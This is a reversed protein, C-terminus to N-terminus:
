RAEKLFQALKELIQDLLKQNVYGVHSEVIDEPHVEISWDVFVACRQRLGTM